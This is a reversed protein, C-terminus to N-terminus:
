YCMHSSIAKNSLVTFPTELTVSNDNLIKKIKSTFQTTSPTYNPTPAPNTPSAVTITGGIMDGEFKGGVLQLVPQNNRFFYEVTGTTYTPFQTTPYNRDLQVGVNEQINVGPEKIFIIETENPDTPNVPFQRIWKVNTKDRWEQPVSQGNINSLIGTITVTCDGPSTDEYIYITIVRSKDEDLYNIFESYIPDGNYDLVEVKVPTGIKLNNTNGQLKILNKGSTFRLPLKTIKFVDPSTVSTDTVYTPITNLGKKVARQKAM